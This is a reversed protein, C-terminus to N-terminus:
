NIEQEEVTDTITSLEKHFSVIIAVEEFWVLSDMKLLPAASWVEEGQNVTWILHLM